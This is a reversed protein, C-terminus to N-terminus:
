TNEEQGSDALKAHYRATITDSEEVSAVHKVERTTGPLNWGKEHNLVALIGVPQKKGSILLDGLSRERESDLIKYIDNYESNLRTRNGWDYIVSRSIGLMSAFSTVNIAKSYLDCLYIYYELLGYLLESNNIDIVSNSKYRTTSSDAKFVTKYIYKLCANFVNQTENRLDSINYEVCFDDIANDIRNQYYEISNTDIDYIKTKM